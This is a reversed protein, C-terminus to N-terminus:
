RAVLCLVRQVDDPEHEKGNYDAFAEMVQLDAETIVRDWEAASWYCFRQRTTQVEGSLWRWRNELTGMPPEWSMSQINEVPGRPSPLVVRDAPLAAAAEIGAPLVHDIALVSRRHMHARLRRLALRLTRLDPLEHVGFYPWLILEFSTGLSLFQVDQHVCTVRSALESTQEGLRRRLVGLMDESVDVATLDSVAPLLPVTLRGTGCGVELVRGSLKTCLAAYFGLDEAHGAHLVDYLEAANMGM